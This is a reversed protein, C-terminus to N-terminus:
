TRPHEHQRTTSPYCRSPPPGLGRISTALPLACAWLFVLFLVLPGFFFLSFLVLAHLAAGRIGHLCNSRLTGLAVIASLGLVGVSIFGIGELFIGAPHLFPAARRYVDGWAILAYCAMAAFASGMTFFPCEYEACCQENLVNVAASLSVTSIASAAIRAVLMLAM